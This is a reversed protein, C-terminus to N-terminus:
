TLSAGSSGYISRDLRLRDSVLAIFESNTPKRDATNVSYGFLENLEESNGRTWAIEIAHRIAREVRTSTTSHQKAVEPYLQKTISDMLSVDDVTNVIATRLYQYGKVHAPIGLRRIIETVVVELSAEENPRKNSLISEIMSAAAEPDVPKLFFYSAGCEVLQKEIFANKVPITVIFSPFFEKESRLKNMVAIADLNPMSLDTLVIEPRDKLISRYLVDGDRKRTYAFIGRQKLAGAIKFGHDLTDDAILVRVKESFM